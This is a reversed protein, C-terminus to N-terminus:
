DRACDARRYRISVTAGAPPAEDLVVNAAADDLQWESTTTGNISVVLSGIDPIGVLRYETPPATAIVAALTLINTDMRDCVSLFSGGTAEVMEIWGDAAETGGCGGSAPGAIAHAVFDAPTAVRGQFVSLFESWSGSSAEARETVGVVHLPVGAGRVLGVNCGRPGTAAPHTASALSAFGAESGDPSRSLMEELGDTQTLLSEEETVFPALSRAVCGDARDVAALQYDAGAAVLAQVFGDWVADLRGVQDSDHSRDVAFVIDVRPEHTWTLVTEEVVGAGSIPVRSVPEVLDNSDIVAESAFATAGVPAFVVEVIALEGPPISGPVRRGLTPDVVLSLGPSDTELWLATVDLLADSENRLEVVVREECGVAVNGFAVSRRSLTLQPAPTGEGFLSARLTGGGTGLEVVLAGEVLGVGAPAFRVSLATSGGAALTQPAAVSEFGAEAGEITVGTVELACSGTNAIALEGEAVTGVIVDGFDVRLDLQADAICHPEVPEDDAGCALVAFFYVGRFRRRRGPHSVGYLGSGWSLGGWHQEEEGAGFGALRGVVEGREAFGDDFHRGGAQGDLRVGGVVVEVHVDPASFDPDAPRRSAPPRLPRGPLPLARAGEGQKKNTGWAATGGAGPAM